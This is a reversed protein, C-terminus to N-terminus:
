TSNVSLDRSSPMKASFFEFPAGSAAMVSNYMNKWDGIYMDHITAVVPKKLRLGALSCPMLAMHGNADIIDHGNRSLHRFLNVWFSLGNMYNRKPPNKVTSPSVQIINIGSGALDGAPTSTYLDVEYGHKPLRRAMEYVRREVGFLPYLLETCLAIKPM